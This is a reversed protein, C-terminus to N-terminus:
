IQVEQATKDHLPMVSTFKTHHDIINMAWFLPKKCSCQYNRFDRFDIEVLSLFTPSQLPKTVVRVHSTITTQQEHLLCLSVFLKVVRVSVESYNDNEWKRTIHRGRHATRQHALILTDYLKSKPIVTKRDPTQLKEQHYTWKKRQLTKLQSLYNAKRKERIVVRNKM